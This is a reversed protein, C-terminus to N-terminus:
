PDGPEPWLPETTEPPQPHGVFWADTTFLDAIRHVDEALSVLAMFSAMQGAEFQQRGAGAIDARLDATPDTRKQETWYAAIQHVRSAWERAAELPTVEARPEQSDQATM